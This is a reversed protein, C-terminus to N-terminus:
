CDMGCLRSSLVLYFVGRGGIRFILVASWVLTLSNHPPEGFLRKSHVGSTTRAFQGSVVRQFAISAGKQRSNACWGHNKRPCSLSCQMDRLGYAIIRRNCNLSNSPFEREVRSYNGRVVAFTDPGQSNMRLRM